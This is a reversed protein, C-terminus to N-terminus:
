TPRVLEYQIEAPESAGSFLDFCPECFPLLLEVLLDVWDRKIAARTDPNLGNAMRILLPAIPRLGVDWIHAQTRSIFPVAREVVLGARRFRGEWTDRDALTPWCDTRGRGIIDLFEEGLRDHHSELTYGRLSDLKVQLVIRGGPVSIRRVENLLADIRRVWYAANCYVFRVSADEFPLAENADHEVLREYIGLPKARRLLASKADCGIEFKTAPLKQVLPRFEDDIHDFIDHHETRVRDLGGVSQFVDWAPDLLGGLHLFSFVGDGCCLDLAPCSWEVRSLMESRMAMWFANEPRLWYAALFRELRERRRLASTAIAPPPQELSATM